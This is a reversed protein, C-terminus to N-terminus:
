HQLMPTYRLATARSQGLQAFALEYISGQAEYRVFLEDFPAAMVEVGALMLSAVVIITKLM